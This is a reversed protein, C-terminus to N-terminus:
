PHATSIIGKSKKHSIMHRQFFPMYTVYSIFIANKEPRTRDQCKRSQNQTHLYGASLVCFFFSKQWTKYTWTYSSILKSIRLEFNIMQVTCYISLSSDLRSGKLCSLNHFYSARAHLEFLLPIYELGFFCFLFICLNFGMGRGISRLFELFFFFSSPPFLFFFRIRM